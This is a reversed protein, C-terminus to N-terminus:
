FTVGSAAVVLRALEVHQRDTKPRFFPWGAEDVAGSPLERSVLIKRVTQACHVADIGCPHVPEAFGDSSELLALVYDKQNSVKNRFLDAAQWLHAELRPLTLPAPETMAM